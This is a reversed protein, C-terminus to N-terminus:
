MNLGNDETIKKYFEGAATMTRAKTELDVHVLGFRYTPGLNWEFNDWTSWHIYGRIDVGSQMTDHIVQLYDKISQIRRQPDETCIGNEIVIVPLRRIKYLRKLIIGLGQPYYGWMKDHPIGMKALKGPQDVETVPFPAFPMYTYYSIGWYDLKKFHRITLRHYWADFIAAPLSGLPHLAKFYATNISISVPAEPYAKKIRDYVQSHAEGLHRLVRAALRPNRRQPPFTGLVFACNAYANPENFTNWNWVYPGFHEVCQEAFNVFAAVNERKLWGGNKEFWNPNAFHHLVLLLKMGRANLKRFFDQYEATTETDFPAFPARQLKSWDIGGRYVTGFQCIYNLDEDRRLEHDTTRDLIFGDKSPFCKWQHDFATETQAASTSTGWFFDKPFTLQM